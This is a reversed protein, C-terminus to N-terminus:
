AGRANDAGEALRNFGAGTRAAGCIGGVVHDAVPDDDGTRNPFAVDMTLSHELGLVARALTVRHCWPCNLAVFLHYRGNAVRQIEAWRTRRYEHISATYM